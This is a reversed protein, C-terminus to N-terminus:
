FRFIRAIQAKAIGILLDHSQGYASLFAQGDSLLRAKASGKSDASDTGPKASSQDLTSAAAQADLAAKIDDVTIGQRQLGKELDAQREESVKLRKVLRQLEAEDALRERTSVLLARKERKAASYEFVAFSLALLVVIGWWVYPGLNERRPNPNM